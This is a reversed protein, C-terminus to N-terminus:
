CKGEIYNIADNVNLMDAYKMWMDLLSARHSLEIRDFVCDYLVGVRYNLSAADVVTARVCGSTTGGCVILSDVNLQNLYSVIPTGVFASAYGKDVVFDNPQLDVEKVLDTYPHGEIYISRNNRNTKQAFGDFTLYKAVNRTFIVPLNKERFKNLIPTTRELAEWAREGSGSPFEDIQNLIPKREGMYIPQPDIVLLAPKNGLEKAKGYGGKEIVQKDTGILLDEWIKEVEM